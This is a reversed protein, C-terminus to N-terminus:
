CTDDDDLQRLRSVDGGDDDDGDDDDGNGDGVEEFIGSSSDVASVVVHEVNQALYADEFSAHVTEALPSM